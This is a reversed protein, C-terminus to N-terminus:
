CLIRIRFWLLLYEKHFIFNDNTTIKLSVLAAICVTVDLMVWFTGYSISLLCISYVNLLCCFHIMNWHMGDGLPFHFLLSGQLFLTQGHWGLRGLANCVVMWLIFDFILWHIQVIYFWSITVFLTHISIYATFAEMCLFTFLSNCIESHETSVMTKGMM